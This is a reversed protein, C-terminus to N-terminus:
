FKFDRISKKESENLEFLEMVLEDVQKNERIISEQREKKDLITRVLQSIKNLKEKSKFSPMPFQALEHVKFQPFIRRQFKDFKMLFWLTLPKSNLVGLSTYIDVTNFNEVVMSNIDNIITRDVFTGDIAYEGKSPIQRVLIRPESFNTSKRPEALCDSYKIYETSPKLYYRQVNNGDIYPLYSNDIKVKSHYVREDKDAKTMKSGPHLKSKGKGVQYAKIGTKVDAYESLPKNSDIDWFANIANRYKVMSISFIPNDDGFFNRAVTGITNYEGHELEGVTIDTPQEKTFFVLCNDVNADAFLKDMSNIIELHGTKKILFNRIKQNSRITLMNNPVIYAFTGGPKLLSYGLEMFLTYTNAQYEDVTYHDLYYKKTYDDFSQNRSFIYPPNAIVLDWGVFEGEENLVEPFEMRWEMSNKFVPNNKAKDFAERAKKAKERLTNLEDLDVKHFLNVQGASTLRAMARDLKEGAPTRFSGFFENKIREIDRNINAKVSKDSTNKYEKVLSLYDKFNNKRMDFHADLDFRRMLSDGVKINIDINPLTTLRNSKSYYANKLLEIWLRLRCINVSNANIDVGYLCNEIITRKQNFLAKQIRSTSPKNTSYTFINGNVDRVVLEDNIVLCQVDNLLNGDADFLVRLQSKIVILENLVSVLFHGSGVAPDLVKINDIADSVRKREEISFDYDQTRMKLEEISKANWHMTKNIKTLVASKVSKEAMYMTIKGPTFFSGDKYGNIKEFILGLVSANILQNQEKSSKAERNYTFDYSDLFKFLYDLISLEGKIKKGKADRLKTRPYVNIKGQRLQNITIGMSSAEVDSREFLSSNMYPVNPYEKQIRPLRDEVRKAMVAFFLDNIDDFSRLKNYNLFKYDESENFSVLSSELLKLFLIRNIWVVVLQLATDFLENEPVDNTELQEITSEILSSYQRKSKPLRTIIKSKGKEKEQLGMIYLLENYFNKNLKNSDAFVEENLLNQESFFRYLQAIKQKNPRHESKIMYDNLNFHGIRIGKEIAKDIEPAIVEQYLFDTTSSSLQNNLYKKYNNVLRKNKIFNKELQDSTFIFFDLGNTVIGKKVELNNNVLREKLYYSVLERFSKVNLHTTSMMESTNNIKKYEIIVGPKSASKVGNYVAMDIRGSTNIFNNPLVKQLFDRFVDKQFEEDRDPNNQLRQIFENLSNSFQEKQEDMPMISQVNKNLIQKLNFLKAVM